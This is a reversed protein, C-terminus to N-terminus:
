KPNEHIQFIEESGIKVKINESGIKDSSFDKLNLFDDSYGIVATKKPLISPSRFSFIFKDFKRVQGFGMSDINTLVAQKQFNAPPYQLYFLFFIYPPGNKDTMYFQDFNDYNKRVYSVIEKYGCQWSRIVLPRKPYHNFYFDWSFFLFFMYIGTLIIMFPIGFRNPKLASFSHRIGYAVIILIPVILYFSRTLSPELWTAAAALPSVVLLTVLLHRYKEGRKYLYYLGVFIFFYEVPNLPSYGPLGFRPNSDGNVSLFTPSFYTLYQNSL